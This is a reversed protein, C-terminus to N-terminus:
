ACHGPHWVGYYGRFGPVWPHGPPCGPGPGPPPAVVCGSLAIAAGLVAAARLCNRIM